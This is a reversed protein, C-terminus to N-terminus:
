RAKENTVTASLNFREGGQRPDQTVPASFSVGSLLRSQELEAILAAARASTGTLALTRDRLTLQALWTNDPLLRTVEDLLETVTPRDTKRKALFENLRLTADIQKRVADVEIAAARARTVQENTARLRDHV